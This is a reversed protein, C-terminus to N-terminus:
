NWCFCFCNLMVTASTPMKQILRSVIENRHRTQLVFNARFLKKQKKEFKRVIFNELINESINSGKNQPDSFDRLIGVLNGM